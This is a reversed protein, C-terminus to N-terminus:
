GRFYLMNDAVMGLMPGDCFVGSMGFMRRIAIHGIPAPQECLFEAFSDSIIM